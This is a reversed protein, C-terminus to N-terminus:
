MSIPQYKFIILLSKQLNVYIRNTNAHRTQDVLGPQTIAAVATTTLLM